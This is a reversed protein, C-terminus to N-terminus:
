AHSQAREVSFFQDMSEIMSEPPCDFFIGDDPLFPEYMGRLFLYYNGGFNQTYNYSNPMTQKLFRHLALTYLHYQLIYDSHAMTSPLSKSAFAGQEGTLLNSKWDLIYYKQNHRFTLDIFGKFCLRLFYPNNSFHTLTVAISTGTNSRSSIESSLRYALDDDSKKNKFKSNLIDNLIISPLTDKIKDAKIQFNEYINKNILSMKIEDNETVYEYLGSNYLWSIFMLHSSNIKYEKKGNNEEVIYEADVVEESILKM